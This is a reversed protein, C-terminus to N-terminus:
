RAVLPLFVRHSSQGIASSDLPALPDLTMRRPGPLTIKTEAVLFDAWGSGGAHESFAFLRDNIYDDYEQTDRRLPYFISVGNSDDLDVFVDGYDPPMTNSGASHAVVFQGIEEILAAAKEQVEATALDSAQLHTAWSLLDVYMDLDNNVYDYNSDFTRSAERVQALADRTADSEDNRMLAILVESLDHVAVYMADARQMALASLTYPFQDAQAHAAYQEVIGQAVEQPTSNAGIVAQYDNYAFYSWGLYQSAILIHTGSRLEYAMELLQMSCADLHVIDVPAVDAMRLAEGVEGPTLYAQYDVDSTMDWGIGLLGQGHNAIALYYHDAPFQEQGWRIFDALVDPTDMAQEDISTEEVVPQSDDSTAPTFLLRRTDGDVPGDIQVAIRVHANDFSERLADLSEQFARMQAERDEYDGALYLLMTWAHQTSPAVYIYEFVPDSWRGTSDQVTLSIRHTGTSLKSADQVLTAATGIEGDKDSIWNYAQMDDTPDSSQGMGHITLTDSASLSTASMYTITAIPKESSTYRFLQVRNDTFSAVYIGDDDDFALGCPEQLHGDGAQTNGFSALYAGDTDFVQVRHNNQDTVYVRNQEDIAIGTPFQFQGDGNGPEGWTALYDGTSDFVHVRNNGTDSVYVNASTDVAVGAPNNLQGEGRGPEGLTALWNGAMDFAQVRDNGTEAVYVRGANRDVAIGGPSDFQAQGSGFSGWATIFTGTTSLKQVRHNASDAIYLNDEGDIAMSGPCQLQGPASGPTGWESLFTGTSDYVLVRPQGPDLLCGMGANGPDLVYVNGQSDVVVESARNFEGNGLHQEYVYEKTNNGSLVIDVQQGSPQVVYYVTRTLGDYRATMTITEGPVINLSAAGLSAQYYADSDTGHSQTTKTITQGHPSAIEVEANAVPAGDVFVFGSICCVPEDEGPPTVRRCGGPLLTASSLTPPSLLGAAAGHQQVVPMAPTQAKMKEPLVLLPGIGMVILALMIWVKRVM